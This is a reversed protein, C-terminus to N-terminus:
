KVNETVGAMEKTKTSGFVYASRENLLRPQNDISSMDVLSLKM